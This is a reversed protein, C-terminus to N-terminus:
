KGKPTPIQGVPVFTGILEYAKRIDDQAAESVVPGGFLMVAPDVKLHNCLALFESLFIDRRGNLWHGVQAPSVGVGAAIQDRQFGPQGRHARIHSRVRLAWLPPEPQEKSVAKLAARKRQPVRANDALTWMEHSVSPISSGTERM